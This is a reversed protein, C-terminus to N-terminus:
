SMQDQGLTENWFYCIYRRFSNSLIYVMQYDTLIKIFSAKKRLHTFIQKTKTGVAGINYFKLTKSSHSLVFRTQLFDIIEQCKTQSISFINLDICHLYSITADGNPIFTLINEAQKEFCYFLKM